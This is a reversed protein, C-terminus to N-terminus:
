SLLHMWGFNQNIISVLTARFHIVIEKWLIKLLRDLDQKPYKYKFVTM